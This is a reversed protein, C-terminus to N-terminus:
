HGLQVIQFKEAHADVDGNRHITVRFQSRVKFRGGDGSANGTLHSGFSNTRNLTVTVDNDTVRVQAKGTALPTVGVLDCPGNSDGVPYITLRPRSQTTIKFSGDPRSVEQFRVVDLVSADGDCFAALQGASVGLVAAFEGDAFADFFPFTFRTVLDATPASTPGLAVTPATPATPASADTCALVLTSALAACGLLSPRM